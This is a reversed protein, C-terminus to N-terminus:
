SVKRKGELSAKLQDMLNASKSYVIRMPEAAIKKGKAKAKIIKLLRDAYEDKFIGPNFPKTLQEILSIAMKVETPKSKAASIKIEKADRVEQAFRLRNIMLVNEYPKILCVYERDRMVFTGLGAKGTKVLVENLLQYARIGTKEPQIFYPTEFYVSDIEKEKIFQVIEIHSSKEPSAKEFDTKEVVVYRDNLMYGKVINEWLVEKGSKENVRKFRINAHDKKDLMDFDLTSNNIASFLKIPINVLGFGISGTWISKM